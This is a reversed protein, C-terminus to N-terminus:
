FALYDSILCSLTYISNTSFKLLDKTVSIRTKDMSNELVRYDKDLYECNFTLLNDGLNKTYLSLYPNSQQKFLINVNYDCISSNCNKEIYSLIKLIDKQLIQMSENYPAHYEPIYLYIIGEYEKEENIDTNLQCVYTLDLNFGNIRIKFSNGRNEIVQRRGDIKMLENKIKDFFEEDINIGKFCGDLSFIVQKNFFVTKVKAIYKAITLNKEKIYIFFSWLLSVITLVIDINQIFFNYYRYVVITLTIIFMASLSLLGSQSNLINKLVKKM